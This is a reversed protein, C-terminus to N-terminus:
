RYTELLDNFEDVNNPYDFNVVQDPFCNRINEERDRSVEIKSIWFVEKIDGFLRNKALNQFFTTKGCETRGVILINREFTGNYMYLTEDMRLFSIHNTNLKLFM